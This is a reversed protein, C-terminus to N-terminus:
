MFNLFVVTSATNFLAHMTIPVWLTGTREYMEEKWTDIGGWVM